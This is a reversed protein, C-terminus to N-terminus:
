KTRLSVEEAIKQEIREAANLLGDRYMFKVKTGVKHQPSSCSDGIIGLIEEAIQCSLNDSCCGYEWLSQACLSINNLLKKIEALELKAALRKYELTNKSEECLPLVEPPSALKRLSNSLFKAIEFIEESQTCSKM